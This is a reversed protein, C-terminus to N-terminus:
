HIVRLNTLIEFAITTNLFFDLFVHLVLHIIKPDFISFTIIFTDLICSKDVKQM